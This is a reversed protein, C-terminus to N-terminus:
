PLHGAGALQGGTCWWGWAGPLSSPLGPVLGQDKAEWEGLPGLLLSLLLPAGRSPVGSRGLTYVRWAGFSSHSDQPASLCGPGGGCRGRSPAERVM